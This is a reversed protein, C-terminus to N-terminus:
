LCGLAEYAPESWLESRETIQSMAFASIMKEEALPLKRTTPEVTEATMPSVHPTILCGQDEASTRMGRMIPSPPITTNM